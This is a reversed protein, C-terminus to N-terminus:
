LSRFLFHPGFRGLGLRSGWWGWLFAWVSLLSLTDSVGAAHALPGLGGVCWVSGFYCLWRGTTLHCWWVGRLVGV